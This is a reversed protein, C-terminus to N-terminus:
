WSLAPEVAAVVVGVVVWVGVLVGSSSATMAPLPWNAMGNRRRRSHLAPVLKWSM